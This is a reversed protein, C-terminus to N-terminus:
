VNGKANAPSKKNLVFHGILVNFNAIVLLTSLNTLNIAVPVYIQLLYLQRFDFDLVFGGRQGRGAPDLGGFLKYHMKLLFLVKPSM